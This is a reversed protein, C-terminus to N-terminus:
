SVHSQVSTSHVQYGKITLQENKILSNRKRKLPQEEKCQGFLVLFSKEAVHITRNVKQMTDSSFKGKGHALDWRM